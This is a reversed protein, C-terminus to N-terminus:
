ATQIRGILLMEAVWQTAGRRPSRQAPTGVLSTTTTSHSDRRDTAGRGASAIALRYRVTTTIRVILIWPECSIRRFLLIRARIVDHGAVAGAPTAARGPHSPRANLVAVLAAASGVESHGLVDAVVPSGQLIPARRYVAAGCKLPPPHSSVRRNRWSACRTMQWDLLGLARITSESVFRLMRRGNRIM